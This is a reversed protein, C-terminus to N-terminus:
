ERQAVTASQNQKRLNLAHWLTPVDHQWRPLILSMALGEANALIGLIMAAQFLAGALGFSMLAICATALVLGWGKSLWSHYSAGKGFKARDFAYNAVEFSILGTLGLAHKLLVQPYLVWVGLAVSSYFVTDAGSDYRRLFETAISLRRALIGDFIDSLLAVLICAAM